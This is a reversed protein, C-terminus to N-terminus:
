KDAAGAIVTRVENPGAIWGVAQEVWGKGEVSESSGITQGLFLVFM